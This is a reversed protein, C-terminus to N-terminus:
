DGYIGDSVKKNSAIRQMMSPKKQTKPKYEIYFQTPSTRIFVETQEKAENPCGQDIKHITADYHQNSIQSIYFSNDIIYEEPQNGIRYCIYNSFNIPSTSQNFSLSATEKKSTNEYLDCDMFRSNMLQYESFVKSAHPPIAVIPKEEYSVSSSKSSGASSSATATLSGPVKKGYINWFGLASGSLATTESSIFSSSSSSVRNLYYDYAIGNKILFSKSLDIYIIDDSNNVILFSFVGGESWFNYVVDCANSKYEYAGTTSKPLDSSVNCIQYHPLTNCSCMVLTLLGFLLSKKM